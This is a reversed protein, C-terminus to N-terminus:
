LDITCRPKCNNYSLCPTTTHLLHLECIECQAESLPFKWRHSPSTTVTTSYALNKTNMSAATRATRRLQLFLCSLRNQHCNADSSRITHLLIARSLWMSWRDVAEINPITAEGVTPFWALHWAPIKASSYNTPTTLWIHLRVSKSLTAMALKELSDCFPLM